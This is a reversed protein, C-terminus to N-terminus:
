LKLLKLKLLKFFYLLITIKFFNQTNCIRKKNKQKFRKVNNNEMKIIRSSMLKKYRCMYM